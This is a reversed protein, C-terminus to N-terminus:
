KMAPHGKDALFKDFVAIEKKQAAIINKAMKKMKPDKGDKLQAEAMIIAGQHHVRMMMAFDMDANGTSKMAKMQGQMDEMKSKMVGSYGMSMKNPDMAGSAANAPKAMTGMGPPMQAHLPTLVAAIGVALAALQLRKSVTRAFTM